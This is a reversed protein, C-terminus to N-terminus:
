FSRARRRRDRAVVRVSPIRRLMSKRINRSTEFAKDIDSQSMIDDGDGEIITNEDIKSYVESLPARTDHRRSLNSENASGRHPQSQRYDSGISSSSSWSRIASSKRRPAAIQPKVGNSSSSEDEWEDEWDDTSPDQSTGCSQMRNETDTSKTIDMNDWTDESLVRMAEAELSHMIGQLCAAPKVVGLEALESSCCYKAAPSLPVLKIDHSFLM